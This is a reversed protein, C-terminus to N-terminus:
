EIARFFADAVEFRSAIRKDIFTFIVDDLVLIRLGALLYDAEAKALLNGSLKVEMGMMDNVIEPMRQVLRNAVTRNAEPPWISFVNIKWDAFRGGVKRLHDLAMTFSHVGIEDRVDECEFRMVSPVLFEIRKGAKSAGILVLTDNSNRNLAGSRALWVERGASEVQNRRDREAMEYPMIVAVFKFESAEAGATFHLEIESEGKAYDEIHSFGRERAWRWGDEATKRAFNLADDQTDFRLGDSNCSREANLSAAGAAGAQREQSIPM